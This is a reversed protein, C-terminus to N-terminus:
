MSQIPKGPAILPRRMDCIRAGMGAARPLRALKVQVANRAKCFPAARQQRAQVGNRTIVALWLPSLSISFLSVDPLIKM